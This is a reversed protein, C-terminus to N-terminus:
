SIPCADVRVDGTPKGSAIYQLKGNIYLNRICGVYDGTALIGKSTPDAAGGIYLPDNTDASSVDVKGSQTQLVGDVTLNLVHKDKVARIIHWNGDCLARSTQPAYRVTIPGAGNDTSLVIEGETLQLVLFDSKNEHVSLLIGEQTRPRIEMEIEMKQSVRFKDYLQVYGGNAGFFSGSEDSNSCNRVDIEMLPKKFPMNDFKIYALCGDFGAYQGGLNKIATKSEKENLGGIFHPEKTNLSVANGKTKGKVPKSSDVTLEGNQNSRKATVTHWKNDNYTETSAMNATGTGCNFSFQVKGNLLFIALFDVHNADATYFILGNPASTKFKAVITLPKVRIRAPLEKYEQRSYMSLGFRIGTVSDGGQVDSNVQPLACQADSGVEILDPKDVTKEVNCDDLTISKRDYVNALSQFKKNITIDGLCGSLGMVNKVAESKVDFTAPLGGFYLPKDTILERLGSQSEVMQVDDISMTLKEGMKMISIYHWNGDSYTNMKSTLQNSLTGLEENVTIYGNSVYVAFSNIQNADSTFLLLANKEQTRMKFTVDFMSGINVPQLSIYGMKSAPFSVIHPPVKEICEKVIGNSRKFETLSVSVTGVTIDKICGDFGAIGVSNPLTVASDFGGLYIDDTTELTKLNGKSEVQIEETRDNLILIGNKMNRDISVKHWTGNNYVDSSKVVAAGSGLDYQFVIHGGRLEVSFYDKYGMYFLLADTAYTKFQFSVKTRDPKLLSGRSFVAYGNGNFSVGKNRETEFDTKNRTPFGVYNNEGEVFNWLGIPEGDFILDQIGGSYPQSTLEQPIMINEPVGGILFKTKNANLELVAFTGQSSGEIVDDDQEGDFSKVTLKGSKGVRQALVQHWKWNNVPRYNVLRASGSGLNFTFVIRGGRLELSLFDNQIEGAQRITRSVPIAESLSRTVRSVPKTNLNDGIYVLLADSENTKYLLSLQSFSGSDELTPPNRLTVTTNGLLSLGIKINNSETRASAIKEKLAEVSLALGRGLQTLRDANVSLNTLLSKIDPVTKDATNLNDAAQRLDEVMKPRNTDIYDMKNKSSDAENRVRESLELAKDVIDAADGAKKLISNSTDSSSTYVGKLGNIDEDMSDLHERVQANDKEATIIAKRGNLLQAFGDQTQRYLAEAESLLQTSIGLSISVNQEVGSLEMKAMESDKVAKDSSNKAEQITDLINKYAQLAQVANESVNRTIEYTKDLNDASHRLDNAVTLSRNSLIWLDGLSNGHRTVQDTLEPVAVDLKSSEREIEQVDKDSSNALKQSNLFLQDAVKLVDDREKILAKITERNGKLTEGQVAKLRRITSLANEANRVSFYSNNQHDNLRNVTDEVDKGLLLTNNLNQMVDQKLVTVKKLVTKVDEEETLSSQNPSSFNLNEIDQIIRESNSILSNINRSSSSVMLQKKVNDIYQLTENAIKNLERTLSQSRAADQTLNSVEQPLNFSDFFIGVAQEHLKRIKASYNALDTSLPDLQEKFDDAQINYLADVSPRLMGVTENNSNLQNFAGVGISVERLQRNVVSVNRALFDLDDLLLHVCYDCEQCGRNAVLVWRPLCRDCKDGTVGPLCQCRGTKPDCGVAGASLCECVQCGNIGINWHGPKCRDCKEGEVGPQCACIGTRLDCQSTVSGIGCNCERCGDCYDFGWSDASCKDCKPGDVNPKCECLGFNKECSKSGCSNCNCGQCDKRDVADGWYWDDCVECREGATNRECILCSGNRRDCSDPNRVDINGNCSCPQCFSGLERPNGYYGADCIECNSGAYGPFCSCQTTEHDENASCTTAFNNSFVPLPCSCIHCAGTEPDGYYGALCQECHPGTTNDQCNFCEGTVVDCTNSHGNCNCQLCIGLYPTSRARYYGPSCEECSLGRYNPPCQCREVSDALAGTGDESAVEMSVDSLRIEGVASYFSARIYLSEINSLVMMFQERSVPANTGQHMFNQQLLPIEVVFNTSPSPQTDHLHVITMNNGSIIVDPQIIGTSEKGRPITFLVTYKLKGRYSNIKRQLYASPAIWYINNDEDVGDGLDALRITSGSQQVQRGNSAQWGTMDSVLDWSLGASDCRTTHGFCFCKICGKPNVASLSFMGDACTDCKPGEVHDKCFCQATVQDCIEAKTGNTDCACKECYPFTHYGPLCTGCRRGGVNPNCMCQGTMQDCNLDGDVVGYPNCNCSQCGILPDYGYAQPKCRECREGEVLPPCICEGTVEQCLGFPCNCPKCNPFGFYGPRCASCTRGIINDKCQCNGGFTDCTFSRSGDPNCNCDLAGNNFNTTLTFAGERCFEDDSKLQFGDDVCKTLFEESKDVPQIELYDNNFQDKPVILLYDLWIQGATTGNFVARIDTGTLRVPNGGSADFKITARCGVHNPCFRPNFVGTYEKGDAFVSVPINLGPQSPMYYHVIVIYEGPKSVKGLLELPVVYKTTDNLNVLGVTPDFINSPRDKSLFDQNPAQEFDLRVAGVPRGYDSSVCVGNVKICIVKPSIYDHNWDKLGVAYVSDISVDLDKGPDKGSINLTAYGTTINFIAELGDYDKLVQRCLTNYPCSALTIVANKIGTQTAVEVNLDQTVNRPNHYNIFILYEDPKPVRLDILFSNQDANIQVLGSSGLSKTLIDDPNKVAEGRASAVKVYGDKGFGTVFGQLDPYKFHVCPGPDNSSLCPNTVRQQVQSAEYFGLPILVFYDLFINDPVNTSVTWQGPNLVFSQVSGSSVTSFKPDRTPVFTIEGTQTIDTPADPTLTVTGKVPNDQRNIFRYIIKYLSPNRINVDLTVEPQVKTLIAYGRWSFDPFIRDDYGYRIRAGEPTKGDEVEFKYQHLTPVFHGSLAKDCKQGTIRQKCVCQGTNKDCPQRESGGPDCECDVCGFPNREQLNYFGDLCRHCNQGTVRPKCECQGTKMDCRNVGALTGPKHCECGRCGEPNNRNLDWYGPKCTDCIKGMVKDKCECLRGSTIIGCGGLPYGPIQKAGDPNCNCVECVPYNYFNAGCKECMVGVFNSRCRCQGTVQDCSQALSGYLDCNCPICDPYKYYGPACHDCNLGGFNSRCSCQGSEACIPSLSGPSACQCEECLPFNFYGPKCSDCRSDKFNPRCLCTGSDKDCVEEVTGDKDCDCYSCRPFSFYGNACEGCDRGGFNNLCTCNGSDLDCVSSPSGVPSCECRKCEPFNYFGQACQNCKNGAYNFKCPCAGSGVTCVSGETGNVDCDCPICDPYGYYGFSCRDCMVGTYEPRCLCRGSGEECEGTSVKLDCECPRCADTANRLVDYPRYYKPVCQECNIGMTNDRCNQCVGGGEYNGHIDISLRKSAINEDYICEETHGYCQCPECMFPQDVLARRWKKQTFGACCRECQEGCTNHICGCILKNTSPDRVDCSEAHGNCVCRGGISIDKISYYYRRTVTSDSRAIAMLHGLLTKTRLLRLQIDTARTWEQLEDAYSFNHANPRGNVLSVVIEGNSLPVVKSFETTCIIQTDSSLKQDAPTNFFNICDSPTDAFYQWPQWTKGFDKSRELVWVGPRPSNAMRMYVYAVHFEQGLNITVNVKNLERGLRSLPPSQWWKETGDTAYEVRHDKDPNSANCYDCLQGQILEGSNQERNPTISSTAGTLRCYLEPHPVGYGCTATATINRGQALNFYPPTFVAALIDTPLCSLIFCM